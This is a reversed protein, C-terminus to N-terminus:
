REIKQPIFDSSFFDFNSLGTFKFSEFLDPSNKENLATVVSGERQLVNWYELEVVDMLFMDNSAAILQINNEQCLSFIM